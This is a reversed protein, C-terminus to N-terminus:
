ADQRAFSCTYPCRENTSTPCNPDRTECYVTEGYFNRSQGSTLNRLTEQNLKLHHMPKLHM